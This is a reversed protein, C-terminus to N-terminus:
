LGFAAGPLSLLLFIAYDQSIVLKGQRENGSFVVEIMKTWLKDIMMRLSILPSPPPSGPTVVKIVERLLSEREAGFPSLLCTIFSRAYFFGRVNEGTKNLHIHM